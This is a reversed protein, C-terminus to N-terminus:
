GACPRNAAGASPLGAWSRAGGGPERSEGFGRAGACERVVAGMVRPAAQGHVSRAM